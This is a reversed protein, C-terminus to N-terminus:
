IIELPITIRPSLHSESAFAQSISSGLAIQSITFALPVSFVTITKSKEQLVSTNATNAISLCKRISSHWGLRLGFIPLFLNAEQQ